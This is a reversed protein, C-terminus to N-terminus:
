ADQRRRRSARRWTRHARRWPLEPVGCPRLGSATVQCPGRLRQKAPLPSFLHGEVFKTGVGEVDFFHRFRDLEVLLEAERGQLFASMVFLQDAVKLAIRAHDVLEHM